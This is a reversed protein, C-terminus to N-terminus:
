GFGGALWYFFALLLVIGIFEGPTNGQEKNWEARKKKDEEPEPRTNQDMWPFVVLYLFVIISIITVITGM